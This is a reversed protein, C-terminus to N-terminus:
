ALFLIMLNPHWRRTMVDVRHSPVADGEDWPFDYRGTLLYGIFATMNLIKATNAYAEPETDHIRGIQPGPFRYQFPSGTRTLLEQNQGFRERQAGTSTDKWIPSYGLALYNGDRMQEWILKGSLPDFGRQAEKTLYVTAHQQAGPAAAKINSMDLGNTKCFASLAEMNNEFAAAVMLPDTVYRDPNGKTIAEIHGQPAGFEKYKGLDFREQHSWIVGENGSDISILTFTISQTSANIGLMWKRGPGKLREIPLTTMARSASKFADVLGERQGNADTMTIFVGKGKQQKLAEYSYKAFFHRTMHPSVQHLYGKAFGIAEIGPALDQKEPVFSIILPLYRDPKALVQQYSIHQDGTGQLVWEIGLNVLEQRLQTFKDGELCIFPVFTRGEAEAM